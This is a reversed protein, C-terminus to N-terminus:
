HAPGARAWGATACAARFGRQRGSKRRPPSRPLWRWRGRPPGARRPVRMRRGDGVMGAPSRAPNPVAQVGHFECGAATGLWERPLGRQTREAMVYGAGIGAVILRRIDSEVQQRLEIFRGTVLQPVVFVGAVRFDAAPGGFGHVLMQVRM